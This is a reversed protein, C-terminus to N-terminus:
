GDLCRNLADAFAEPNDIFGLHGGPASGVTTSTRRGLWEAAERFAPASGGEAVLLRVPMPLSSIADPGPTWSSFAGFESEFLVPGNACMRARIDAPLAAFGNADAFRFFADAGGPMGGAAMGENIVPQVAALMAEPDSLVSTLAPEHIVLSAVRDPHRMAMSLAILAGLSNGVVVAMGLDLAALLAAADDAQEEITTSTWGAPRPSRSNARRDYTVVTWRSSLVDGLADFQAADGGAGAVLLLSPGEGRVETFLNTGNAHVHNDTTTM